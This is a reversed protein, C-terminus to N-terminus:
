LTVEIRCHQVNSTSSSDHNIGWPGRHEICTIFDCSCMKELTVKKARSSRSLRKDDSLIDGSEEQQSLVLARTNNSYRALQVLWSLESCLRTSIYCQLFVFLFQEPPFLFFGRLM